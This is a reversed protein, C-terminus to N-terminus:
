ESFNIYPAIKLLFDENLIAIKSLDNITVFDGHQKRYQIIANAQKYSILRHKSLQEYSVSNINIKRLLSRDVLLQKRIGEFREEDMGYVQLLQSVDHFGGLGDRFKVIRSAFVPGIGRLQQLEVSDTSNLEIIVSPAEKPHKLSFNLNARGKNESRADRGSKGNGETGYSSSKRDYEKVPFRKNEGEPIRIYPALRAYDQSSIAYIKAFDEEKYFRGGKAVYNQIMRVQKESLGLSLGQKQSLTNPDFEFYAINELPISFDEMQKGKAYDVNRKDMSALFAHIEREDSTSISESRATQFRTHLSPFIAMVILLVLLAYIGLYQRKSFGFYNVLWNNM